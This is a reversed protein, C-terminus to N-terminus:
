VAMLQMMTSKQENEGGGVEGMWSGRGEILSTPEM